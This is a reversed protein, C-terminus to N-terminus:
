NGGYFSRVGVHYKGDESASKELKSSLERVKRSRDGASMTDSLASMISDTVDDMRVLFSVSLAENQLEEDLSRAWFGDKLYNHEVSSHQQIIDYGCHHNTFLLGQDSVIEGTCFYGNPTGSGAMGVIADKLSSNNISYIEEATLKLGMEEMDTYNLRDVFMPLWMGEDPPTYAMSTLGTFLMGLILFKIKRM